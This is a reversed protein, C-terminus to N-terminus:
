HLQTPSVTPTGTHLKSACCQCGVGKSGGLAWMGKRKRRVGAAHAVIRGEIGTFTPHWCGVKASGLQNSFGKLAGAEKKTCDPAQTTAGSRREGEERAARGGVVRKKKREEIKEKREKGEGEKRKKRGGM